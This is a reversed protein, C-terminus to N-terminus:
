ILGARKDLIFTTIEDIKYDLRLLKKVRLIIWRLVRFFKWLQTHIKYDTVTEVKLIFLGNQMFSNWGQWTGGILMSIIKALRSEKIHETLLFYYDQSTLKVYEYFAKRKLFFDENVYNYGDKLKIVNKPLDKNYLTSNTIEYKECFKMLNIYNSM